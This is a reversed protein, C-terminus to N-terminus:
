AVSEVQTPRGNEDLIFRLGAATDWGLKRLTEAEEGLLRTALEPNMHAIQDPTLEIKRLGEEFIDVKMGLRDHLGTDIMEPLGDGGNQIDEVALEFALKLLDVLALQTPRDQLRLVSSPI